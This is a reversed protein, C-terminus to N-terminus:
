EVWEVSSPPALHQLHMNGGRRCNWSARRLDDDERAANRSACSGSRKEGECRASVRPTARGAKTEFLCDVLGTRWSRGPGSM